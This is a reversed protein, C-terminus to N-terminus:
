FPIQDEGFDDPPFDDGGAGDHHDPKRAHTTRHQAGGERKSGLFLLENVVVETTFRKNGDKDEWQRTQLRGEVYLQSGKTLHKSVGEARKGFMVLWHWETREQKEGDKLWSESTAMRMNLVAGGNQSFRLEPDAGLRGILQVKNLGDSV